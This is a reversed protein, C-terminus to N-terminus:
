RLPPADPKTGVLHCLHLLEAISRVGMKLMLNARHVKVTKIAIGLRDAVIKNPAGTILERMVEKERHTLTALRAEISARIDREDRLSHHHQLAQRVAPLLQDESVPKTLFDLAGRKMANVSMSINGYGTLFIIPLDRGSDMLQTQLEIGSIGPMNVDLLICGVGDYPARELYREASPFDETVLDSARLLRGLSKRISADDDIIFVTQKM